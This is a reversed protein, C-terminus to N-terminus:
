PKRAQLKLLERQMVKLRYDFSKSPLHLICTESTVEKEYANYISKPLYTIPYQEALIHVAAQEHWPHARFRWHQDYVKWLFERAKDSNAYCVVGHNIGNQDKCVHMMSGDKFPRYDMPRLMMADTDMWLIQDHNPLHDLLARIRFWSPHKDTYYDPIEIAIHREPEIGCLICSQKQITALQAQDRTYSTLVTM